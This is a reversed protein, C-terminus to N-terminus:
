RRRGLRRRRGVLQDIEERTIDLRDMELEVATSFWLLRQHIEGLRRGLESLGSASAQAGAAPMASSTVPAAGALARGQTEVITYRGRAVTRQTCEVLRRQSDIQGYLARVGDGPAGAKRERRRSAKSAPSVLKLM